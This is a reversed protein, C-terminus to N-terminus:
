LGMSFALTPFLVRHYLQSCDTTKSLIAWNLLTFLFSGFVFLAQTENLLGLQDTKSVYVTSKIRNESPKKLVFIITYAVGAILGGVIPGM